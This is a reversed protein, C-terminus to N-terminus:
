VRKVLYVMDRLTVGEEVIPEPYNDTFFDAIRHSYRYGCREYFRLTSPTEGTGLRLSRGAFLGEAYELMARGYGRRRVGPAVALNKVEVWGDEEQTVVCVAVAEDGLRGAFVRGRSLYRAIMDGSEDGMLLLPMIEQVPGFYEEIELM